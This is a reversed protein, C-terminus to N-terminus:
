CVRWLHAPDSLVGRSFRVGEAALLARKRRIENGRRNGAFGGITLDSAVVRHCPVWPAFPNRRLAQGVAQSSGCGIAEAVRKYTTVRGRPVLMTAAFVRAQFATVRRPSAAFLLISEHAGPGDGPLASCDVPGLRRLLFSSLAAIADRTGGGAGHLVIVYLRREGPNEQAAPWDALGYRPQACVSVLVAGLEPLGAADEAAACSDAVRHGAAFDVCGAEGVAEAAAAAWPDTRPVFSLMRDGERMGVARLANCRDMPEKVM